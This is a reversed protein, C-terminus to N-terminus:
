DGYEALNKFKYLTSIGIVEGEKRKKQEKENSNM